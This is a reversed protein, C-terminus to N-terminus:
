KKWGQIGEECRGEKEETRRGSRSHNRGREM